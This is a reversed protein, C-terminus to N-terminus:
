IPLFNESDTVSLGSTQFGHVDDDDDNDDDDDDDNEKDSRQLWRRRSRTHATGGETKDDM